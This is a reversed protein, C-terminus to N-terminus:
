NSILCGCGVPYGAEDRVLAGPALLDTRYPLAMRVLNSVLFYTDLKADPLGAVPGFTTKVIRVGHLVKLLTEETMVRAVDGSAPVEIIGDDGMIKIAHPTLNIIKM